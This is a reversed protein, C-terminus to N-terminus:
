LVHDSSQQVDSPAMNPQLETQLQPKRKPLTTHGKHIGGVQRGGRYVRIILFQSAEHTSEKTAPEVMPHRVPSTYPSIHFRCVRICSAVGINERRNQCFLSYEESSADHEHDFCPSHQFDQYPIAPGPV